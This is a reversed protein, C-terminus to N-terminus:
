QKRWTQGADSTTWVEPTSTTITGHQADPFDLSVIDGILISGESSPQVRVWSHGADLSHYLAAGSGGAWVEAGAAAVARFIPDSAQPTLAKKDAYKEKARSMNDVGELSASSASNTNIDVNRWTKGQDFSRQLRGTASITWRPLPGTTSAGPSLSTLQALNGENAPNRGVERSTITSSTSIIDTQAPAGSVEVTESLSGPGLTFSYKSPQSADYNLDLFATKFGPAEAQAKYTGTPLGAILWAGKSNTVAAATAGSGSPIITIRANPVAAGSPDVVYGGIQGPAPLPAPLKAKIIGPPIADAQLWSDALQNRTSAQERAVEPNVGPVGAIGERVTHAATPMPKASSLQEAPLNASYAPLPTAVTKDQSEAPPAAPVSTRSDPLAAGPSQSKYAMMSPASGRRYQLVGLAAILVVGAAALGWRLAPWTLWRDRAPATAAVVETAPLALAIIERCDSCRALHDLVNAREPAPLSQEAFATLLDADPHIIAPAAANLRELVIKPVDPM